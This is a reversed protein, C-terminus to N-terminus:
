FIRFAAKPNRNSMLMGKPIEQTENVSAFPMLSLSSNLRWEESVFNLDSSNIHRLARKSQDSCVKKEEVLEPNFSFNLDRGDGEPVKNSPDRHHNLPKFTHM